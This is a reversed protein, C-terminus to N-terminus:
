FYYRKCEYNKTVLRDFLPLCNNKERYVDELTAIAELNQILSFVSDVQLPTGIEGSKVVILKRGNADAWYVPLM